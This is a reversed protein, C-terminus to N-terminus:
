EDDAMPKINELIAEVSMSPDIEGDETKFSSKGEEKNVVEQEEGVIVPMEKNTSAEVSDETKEEAVQESKLSAPPLPFEDQPISQNEISVVKENNETSSFAADSVIIDENFSEDNEQDNPEFLGIDDVSTQMEDDDSELVRRKRKKSDPGLIIVASKLLSRAKLASPNNALSPDDSDSDPSSNDTEKGDEKEIEKESSDDLLQKKLESDDDSDDENLQLIRRRRKKSGSAPVLVEKRVVGLAKLMSNQEPSFVSTEQKDSPDAANAPQPSSEAIQERLSTAEPVENSVEAPQQLLQSSQSTEPEVRLPESEQIIEAPVATTPSVMNFMSDKQSTLSMDTIATMPQYDISEPYHSTPQQPPILSDPLHYLMPQPQTIYHSPPIVSNAQDFSQMQPLIPLETHSKGNQQGQPSQGLMFNPCNDSGSFSNIFGFANPDSYEFNQQHDM